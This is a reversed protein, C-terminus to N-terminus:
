AEKLLYTNTFGFEESKVVALIKFGMSQYFAVDEDTNTFLMVPLGQGAAYDCVAGMLKRGRGQQQVDEKVGLFDAYIHPRPIELDAELADLEEFLEVRRQREEESLRNMAAEYEASYCGAKIYKEETYEMDDSHVICIGDFVNEDTSFAEGYEMDYSVYFRLTAELAALRAKEDPFAMMLKPYHKFANMYIQILKEKDEAKLRYLGKIEM